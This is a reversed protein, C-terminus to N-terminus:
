QPAAINEKQLTARFVRLRCYEVAGDLADHISKLSATGHQAFAAAIAEREAPTFFAATDIPEGLDLAEALHGYVTSIALDRTQATQEPTEGARHRRLTERASDNLSQRPPRPPAATALPPLTQRPHDALHANIEALFADGFEQLKHQGVGPIALFAAPTAPYERAMHRLPVDSFIVYAPVNREDAVRRRLDRLRRFLTDDCPIDGTAPRPQNATKAIPQTITVPLRQKVAALGEPTVEIANFKEPNQRLLGLRILERALHLWDARPLDTGIGYTTLAAHGLKRIKETDAGTLIEIHHNINVNFGSHQQVRCVCSILKQAPITADVTARPTLCNDCAGCEPYPYTEAFYALLRVRRCAPHEAYDIMQRLQARAIDRERADTIDDLFRTLKMADGASFLLLCEAPLGDRGARGTEQYYGEINKPLDHHVVFRVNPKNIGMGFAVTACIVRLDDRIFLEQNASRQAPTLGAHYPRAPIGDENLNKALSESSKRSQCYVIGADDPRERLFATLQDYAHHKPIVRYTLNPRNFSAVHIAPDRLKLQTVIDHRVRETATATLAMFPIGPFHQRLDALQRYEPRFDHGWESICHAEDVAILRVNWSKLEEIFGPLMLREPAVYLLRYRGAYLGGIRHRAEESHLSSNLFTAPIGAAQLSDVQDKMLAILPSVVLTLGNDFALAPLQFCLSKGGGTPLLAFVDRGGLANSVIDEQHPRFADFGFHRKLLQHLKANMTPLIASLM